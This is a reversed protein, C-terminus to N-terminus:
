PRLVGLLSGGAGWLTLACLGAWAAAALCVTRWAQHIRAASLPQRPESLWGAAPPLTGFERGDLAAAPAGLSGALAAMPLAEALSGGLGARRAALALGRGADEGLARAAVLLLLAALHAPVTGLLRQALAAPRARDLGPPPEPAPETPDEAAGGGPSDQPSGGAPEAAPGPAPSSPRGEGWLERLSLRLVEVGRQALAGPLGVVCFWFLPAIVGGALRRAMAELTATVLRDREPALDVPGAWTALQRRAGQPTGHRLAELVGLSRRGIELLSLSGRLLFVTVLFAAVPREPGLWALLAWAGAAPLAAVLLVLLAGGLLQRGRGGAPLRPALSRALAALWARPSLWAPPEGLALDWLLALGLAAALQGGSLGASM